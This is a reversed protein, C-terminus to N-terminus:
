KESIGMKFAGCSLTIVCGLFTGRWAPHAGVLLRLAMGRHTLLMSIAGNRWSIKGIKRALGLKLQASPKDRRNRSNRPAKRM